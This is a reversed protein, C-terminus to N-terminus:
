ALAFAPAYLRLSPIPLLALQEFYGIRGSLIEVMLAADDPSDGLAADFNIHERRTWLDSKRLLEDPFTVAFGLPRGDGELLLVNAQEIFYAYQEASSGLLFGGRSLDATGPGPSPVIMLQRKIAVLTAVDAPTA